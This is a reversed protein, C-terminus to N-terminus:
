SFVRGEGDDIGPDELNMRVDLCGRVFLLLHFSRCGEEGTGCFELEHHFIHRDDLKGGEVLEDLRELYAESMRIISTLKAETPDGTAIQVLDRNAGHFKLGGGIGGDVVVM